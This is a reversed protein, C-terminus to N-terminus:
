SRLEEAAVTRDSSLNPGPAGNRSCREPDPRGRRREGTAHRRQGGRGPGRRRNRVRARGPNRAAGGPRRALSQIRDSVELGAARRLGQTAHVLERALGERALEDDIDTAIAVIVGDQEAVGFGEKPTRRVDLDGPELTETMGDVEIHLSGLEDLERVAAPADLAALAAPSRASRAASAHASRVTTRVFRTTWWNM